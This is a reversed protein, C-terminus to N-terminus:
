VRVSSASAAAEDKRPCLECEVTSCDVTRKDGWKLGYKKFEELIDCADRGKKTLSYYVRAPKSTDDVRRRILSDQAMEKLRESLVKSSASKLKRSLDMFSLKKRKGYNLESIILMTWQKGLLRVTQRIPCFEDLNFTRTQAAKM